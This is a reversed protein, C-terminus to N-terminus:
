RRKMCVSMQIYCGDSYEEQTNCPEKKSLGHTISASREDIVPATPATYCAHHASMQICADM